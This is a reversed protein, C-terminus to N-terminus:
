CVLNTLSQLESTHEESRRPNPNDYLEYAHITASVPRGTLIGSLYAIFLKHDGFHCHIQKLNRRSIAEAFFVALIFDVISNTRVAELLTKVYRGASDKVFRLHAGVVRVLTPRDVACDKPPM